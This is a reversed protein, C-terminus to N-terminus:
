ALSGTTPAINGCLFSLSPRLSSPGDHTPLQYPDFLLTKPTETAGFAGPYEVGRARGSAIGKIFHHPAELQLAVFFECRM